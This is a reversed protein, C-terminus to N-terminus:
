KKKRNAKKIEENTRNRVDDAMARRVHETPRGVVRRAPLNRDPVGKTHIKALWITGRARWHRYNQVFGIWWEGNIFKMGMAKRLEDRERLILSPNSAGRYEKRKVTLPSLPAWEGGGYSLRLFRERQFRLYRKAANEMLHAQNRQAYRQVQLFPGLDATVNLKIIIAM